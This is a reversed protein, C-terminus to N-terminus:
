SLCVVFIFGVKIHKEETRMVYLLGFSLLGMILCTIICLFYVRKM